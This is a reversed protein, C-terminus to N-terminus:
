ERAQDMARLLVQGPCATSCFLALLPKTLTSIDGWAQVRTFRGLWEAPRETVRRREM